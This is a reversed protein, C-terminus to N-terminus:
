MRVQLSTRFRRFTLSIIKFIKEPDRPKIPQPAPAPPKAPLIRLLRRMLALLPSLPALLKQGASKPAYGAENLFGAATRSTFFPVDDPAGFAVDNLGDLFIAIDCRQGQRLLWEFLASEQTSYFFVHGHNIVDYGAQNASLIKALHSPITQGDPVGWGFQTSGGFLWITKRDPASSPPQITRRVPVPDADDVNLTASTFRRESFGIWPRYLFASGKNLDGFERFLRMAEAHSMTHIASTKGAYPTSRPGYGM